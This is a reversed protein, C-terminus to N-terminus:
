KKYCKTEFGSGDIMRLYFINKKENTDIDALIGNDMENLVDSLWNKFDNLEM